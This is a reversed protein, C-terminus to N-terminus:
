VSLSIKKKIDELSINDPVEINFTNEETLRYRDINMETYRALNITYRKM